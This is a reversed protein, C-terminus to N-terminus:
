CYSSKQWSSFANSSKATAMVIYVIAPIDKDSSSNARAECTDIPFDRSGATICVTKLINSRSPLNFFFIKAM